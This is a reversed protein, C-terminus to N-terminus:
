KWCRRGDGLFLVRTCMGITSARNRFSSFDTEEESNSQLWSQQLGDNLVGNHLYSKKNCMDRDIVIAM